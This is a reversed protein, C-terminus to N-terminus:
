ASTTSGGAKLARRARMLDGSRPSFVADFILYAAAVAWAPFAYAVPEIWSAFLAVTIAAGVSAVTGSAYMAWAKLNSARALSRKDTKLTPVPLRRALGSLSAPLAEALATRGLAISRFRIGVAMGVLYHAPCHVLYTALLELFVLYLVLVAGRPVALAM